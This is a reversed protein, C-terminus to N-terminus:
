SGPMVPELLTFCYRSKFDSGEKFLEESRNPVNKFKQKLLLCELNKEEPYYKLLLLLLLLLMGGM